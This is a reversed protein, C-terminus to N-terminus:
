KKKIRRLVIDFQFKLYNFYMQNIVKKLLKREFIAIKRIM